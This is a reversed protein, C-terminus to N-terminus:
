ESFNLKEIQREYSQFIKIAKFVIICLCTIISILLFLTSIGTVLQLFNKRFLYLSIGVFAAIGVPRFIGTTKKTGAPQLQQLVIGALDFDFAVAPQEKIGSLILKYVAVQEQCSSCIEIHQMMAPEPLPEGGAFIQLEEDSCHRNTM